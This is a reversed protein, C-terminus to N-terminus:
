ERPPPSTSPSKRNAPEFQFVLLGEYNSHADFDTYPSRTTVFLLGSKKDYYEGLCKCNQYMGKNYKWLLTAPTGQKSYFQVPTSRMSDLIVAIEFYRGDLLIHLNRMLSDATSDFQPPALVQVSDLASTWFPFHCGDPADLSWEDINLSFQICSGGVRDFLLIRKSPCDYMGLQEIMVPGASDRSRGIVTFSDICSTMATSIQPSLLTTVLTFALLIRSCTKM